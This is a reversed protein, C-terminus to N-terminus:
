LTEERRLQQENSKGKREMCHLHQSVQQKTSGTRGPYFSKSCWKWHLYVLASEPVIVESSIPTENSGVLESETVFPSSVKPPVSADLNVPIIVNVGIVLVDGALVNQPISWVMVYTSIHRRGNENM